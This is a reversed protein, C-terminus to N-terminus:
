PYAEISKSEGWEEEEDREENNKSMALKVMYFPVFSLSDRESVWKAM